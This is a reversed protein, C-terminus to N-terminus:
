STSESTQATTWITEASRMATSKQVGRTSRPHPHNGSSSRAASRGRRQSPSVAGFLRFYIQLNFAPAWKLFQFSKLVWCCVKCTKQATHLPKCWAGVINGFVPGRLEAECTEKTFLQYTSRSNKECKQIGPATHCDQFNFSLFFHLTNVTTNVIYPWPSWQGPVGGLRLGEGETEQAAEKSLM